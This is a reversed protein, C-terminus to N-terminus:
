PRYLITLGSYNDVVVADPKGDGNIDGVAMKSLQGFDPLSYLKEAQLGGVSLQRYIGIKYFSDHLVVVDKLGDGTMDAIAVQSPSDLSDYNVLPGLLKNFKDARRCEFECPINGFGNSRDWGM